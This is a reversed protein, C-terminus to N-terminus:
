WNIKLLPAMKVDRIIGNVTYSLLVLWKQSKLLYYKILKYSHQISQYFIIDTFCKPVFLATRRCLQPISLDLSSSSDLSSDSNAPSPSSIFVSPSPVQLEHVQVQM